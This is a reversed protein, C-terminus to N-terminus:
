ADRGNNVLLEFADFAARNGTGTFGARAVTLCKKFQTTQKEAALQEVTQRRTHKKMTDIHICTKAQWQSSSCFQLCPM